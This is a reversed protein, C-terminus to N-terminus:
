GDSRRLRGRLNLNQILRHLYNSNLHLIKSAQTLNGKAEEIADLIVKRKADAVAEHYGFSKLNTGAEEFLSEPLDEPCIRDSSGLAVAREIANQLERVNGPWNYNKLLSMAAPDIGTVNRNCEKSYRHLFYIALLPIDERRDRLLPLTVSVVNLRYYLDQRFTADKCAEELNRNTAAILRINVKISRTGGIREFEREQLVRLLKAQAQLSLEGIEDLFLTGGDAM